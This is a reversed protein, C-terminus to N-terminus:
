ECYKKNSASKFYSSVSHSNSSLNVLLSIPHIQNINKLWKKVNYVEPEFVENPNRWCKDFDAGALNVKQNGYKVGDPNVFPIIVFQFNKKFFDFETNDMLFDILGELVFSASTEASHQRAM